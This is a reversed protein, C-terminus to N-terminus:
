MFKVNNRLQLSQSFTLSNFTIESVNIDCTRAKITYYCPSRSPHTTIVAAFQGRVEM